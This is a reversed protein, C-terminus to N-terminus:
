CLFIITLLVNFLYNLTEFSGTRNEQSEQSEEEEESGTPPPRKFNGEESNKRKKGWHRPCHALICESCSTEDPFDRWEPLNVPPRNFLNDEYRTDYSEFLKELDFEVIGDL